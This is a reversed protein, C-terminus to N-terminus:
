PSLDMRLFQTLNMSEPPTKTGEPLLRLAEEKPILRPSVLDYEEDRITLHAIGSALINRVWDSGPGYNPIFIFGGDIRHADLPTHYTKGSSRGVHTLVPRVGRRLELRNFTRKNLKALWRPLPM